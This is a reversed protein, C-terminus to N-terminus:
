RYQRMELGASFGTGHCLEDRQREVVAALEGLTVRAADEAVLGVVPTHEDHGLLRGRRRAAVRVRELGSVGGLNVRGGKAHGVRRHVPPVARAEM